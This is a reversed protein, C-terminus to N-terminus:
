IEVIHYKVNYNKADTKNHKQRAILRKVIPNYTGRQGFANANRLFQALAIDAEIKSDFEQDKLKKLELESDFCTPKELIDFTM